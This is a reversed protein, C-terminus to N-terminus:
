ENEEFDGQFDVSFLSFLGKERSYKTEYNESIQNKM